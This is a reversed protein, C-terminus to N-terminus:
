QNWVLVRVIHEFHRGTIGTTAAVGDGIALVRRSIGLGVADGQEIDGLVPNSPSQGQDNGAARGGRRNLGCNEGGKNRGPVLVVVVFGPRADHHGVQASCQLYDDGSIDLSDANGMGAARRGKIGITRNDVLAGIGRGAIRASRGAASGRSQLDVAARMVDSRDSRARSRGSVNGRGYLASQRRRPDASGRRDRRGAGAAALSVIDGDRAAFRAVRENQGPHVQSAGGASRHINLPPGTVSFQFGKRSRRAM